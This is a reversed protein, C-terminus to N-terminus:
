LKRCINYLILVAEARTIGKDYNLEGNEFLRNLVGYSAASHVVSSYNTPVNNIYIQKDEAPTELYKRCIRDATKIVEYITPVDNPRFARDRLIGNMYLNNAFGTYWQGEAVDTFASGAYEGELGLMNSMISSIEANTIPADPDFVNNSRGSIAGMDKMYTIENKAWHNQIDAFSNSTDIELTEGGAANKAAEEATLSLKSKTKLRLAVVSLGKMHYSSFNEENKPNSVTQILKQSEENFTFATMNPATFLAEEVLTYKNKFNFTIDLDRYMQRNCLFLTIEDRGNGTAMVSFPFSMFPEEPVDFVTSWKYLDSSNFVLDGDNMDVPEDPSTPKGTGYFSWDAGLIRDGLYDEYFKYLKEISSHYYNDGDIRWFSNAFADSTICHYMSGIFFDKQFATNLWHSTFVASQYDMCGPYKWSDDYSYHRSCETSLVKIDKLNGNEDRIDQEAVYSDIDRKIIEMYKFCTETSYGDFYPHYSIADVIGVLEPMITQHWMKWGVRWSATPGCVCIKADPDVKRIAATFDKVVDIYWIARSKDGKVGGISWDIENGLEWYFVDVPNEIGYEARKAGWESENKDDLLFHAINEIDQPTEMFPSPCPILKMNPNNGYMIQLYEIPGTRMADRGDQTAGDHTTISSTGKRENFPGVNNLLKLGLTSSGGWRMVPIKFTDEQENFEIYSKKLEDNEFFKDYKDGMETQVGLVEYHLDSIKDEDIDVTIEHTENTINRADISAVEMVGEWNQVQMVETMKNRWGSISLAEAEEAFVSGVNAAACVAALVSSIIKKNRM